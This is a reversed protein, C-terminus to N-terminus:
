FAYFVGDKNPLCDVPFIEWQIQNKGHMTSVISPLESVPARKLISVPLKIQNLCKNLHVAAAFKNEAEFIGAKSM